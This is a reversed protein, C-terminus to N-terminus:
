DSWFTKGGVELPHTELYLINGDLDAFKADNTGDKHTLLDQTFQIEKKSLERFNMEVDGGRFNFLHSVGFENKIFNNEFLTFRVGGNGITLYGKDGGIKWFGIKKYFEFAKGM